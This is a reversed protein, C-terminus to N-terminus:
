SYDEQLLAEVCALMYCALGAFRGLHFPFHFLSVVVLPILISIAMRHRHFTLDIRSWINKFYCYLLVLGIIGAEFIWQIFENHAWTWTQPQGNEQLTTFGTVAWSGLGMGFWPKSGAIYNIGAFWINFRKPFQGSPMDIKLIYFVGAAVAAIFVAWFIKKNKHWLLFLLSAILAVVATSSKGFWLLPICIIANFPNAAFIFPFAMAALCGLNAKLGMFGVQDPEPMNQPMSSKFIPDINHIQLALWIVNLACFLALLNGIAKFDLDVREALEKILAVGLFFNLLKLRSNPTFHFLVTNLIVYALILALYFNTFPRTRPVFLCVALFGMVGYQFFMEQPAYFHLGPIYFTTCGILFFKLYTDFSIRQIASM